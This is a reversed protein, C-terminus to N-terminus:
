TTIVKKQISIEDLFNRERTAMMQKFEANKKEKLSELVKKDKSAEMLDFRKENMVQDLNEIQEKQQKIEERKRSFFDAYMRVDDICVLEQQTRNFEQGLLSVLNEERQLEQNALELHHKAVILDQKRLKEMERRYMLVQELDFTKGAM